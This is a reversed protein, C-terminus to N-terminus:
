DGEASVKEEKVEEDEKDESDKEKAAEDSDSSSSSGSGSSSSTSSQEDTTPSKIEYKDPNEAMERKFIRKYKRLNYGGDKNLFLKALDLRHRLM